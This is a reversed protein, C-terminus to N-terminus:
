RRGDEMRGSVNMEWFTAGGVDVRYLGRQAAALEFVWVADVPGRPVDAADAIPALALIARGDLLLATRADGGYSGARLAEAPYPVADEGEGLVIGASLESGSHERIAGNGYLIVKM